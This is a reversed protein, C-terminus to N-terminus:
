HCAVGRANPSPECVARKHARFSCCIVAGTAICGGGSTSDKERGNGSGRCGDRRCRGKNRTMTELDAVRFEVGRDFDSDHGNLIITEPSAKDVMVGFHLSEAFFQIAITTRGLETAESAQTRRFSTRRGTRPPTTDTGRPSSAPRM